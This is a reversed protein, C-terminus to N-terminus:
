RMGLGQQPRSVNRIRWGQDRKTWAIDWAMATRTPGAPTDLEVVTTVRLDARPADIEIRPKMFRVSRIKWAKLMKRGHEAAEAKGGYDGTLDEDLYAAAKDFSGAQVDRAIEHMAATIQERDTVVLKEMAFVGVALIPCVLMAAIRRWTRQRYCLAVVALEAVALFGYVYRPDEFLAERLNDM